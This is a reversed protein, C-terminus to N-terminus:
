ISDAAEGRGLLDLEYLMPTVTLTTGKTQTFRKKGELFSAEIGDKLVREIWDNNGDPAM